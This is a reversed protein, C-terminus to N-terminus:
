LSVTGVSTLTTSVSGDLTKDAIRADRNFSNINYIYHGRPAETNGLNNNRVEDDRFTTVGNENVSVGISIVDANSPYTGAETVDNLSSNFSTLPDQVPQNARYQYRRDKYWGANYLNYTHNDDLSTPRETLDLTDDVLEFDRVFMDVEYIEITNALEEYELLVPKQSDSTTIFIINTNEAIETVSAATNLVYSNLLTLSSNNRHIYLTTNPAATTVVFLILDPAQWYYANEITADTGVITQETRKSQFGRRRRRILGDKDLVFNLEDATSNEPFALPSAETILGKALSIYDKDGRVRPMQM